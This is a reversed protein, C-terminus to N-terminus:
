LFLRSTHAAEIMSDLHYNKAPRLVRGDPSSILVDHSSHLHRVAEIFHQTSGPSQAVCGEILDQLVVPNKLDFIVRGFHEHIGNVCAERSSEGFDFVDKQGTYEQDHNADYGQMFVGPELEHGFSTANDWHLDKMVEHAKYRNSLHILWYDWPTAGLPRVFFLTAFRAGSEKRIGYALYRQLVQRWQSDTKISRIDAWPIYASLGIKEMPLRNEVRDALFTTLSGVNFTLLVEAGQMRLINAIEGMPLQDYSYQDLIFIAREGMKRAKIEKLVRPLEVLFDSQRVSSRALDIREVVGEEARVQLRHSLFDATDREVDIFVYDVSVERPKDRGLNLLARAERVARMMLLPSGDVEGFGDEALYAGGGAFGDVLTLQLKPIVANSMLTLIYKRVYSEVIRHKVVSHQEILPPASGIRWVYKNSKKM